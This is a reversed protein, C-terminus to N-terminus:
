VSVGIISLFLPRYHKRTSWTGRWEKLSIGTLQEAMLEAVCHWSRDLMWCMLVLSHTQCGPLYLQLLGVWFTLPSRLPGSECPAETRSWAPWAPPARQALEDRPQYHRYITELMLHYLIYFIQEKIWVLDQSWDLFSVASLSATRGRRTHFHFEAVSLKTEKGVTLM